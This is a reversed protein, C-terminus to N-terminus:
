GKIQVRGAICEVDLPFNPGKQGDTDTPIDTLPSTIYLNHTRIYRISAPKGGGLYRLADLILRPISRKTFFICDLMGDDCRSMRAFPFHGATCGNFVLVIAANIDFEDNDTKVLLPITPIKRLERLGKIIYALRGLYRKVRDSTRQSTTTFLGFSFVNIFFQENTRGCDVIRIPSQLIHLAAKRPNHPIGLMTAFDNATGAPVIGLPLNINKLLMSSVVYGITGDGGIAVVIDINDINSFPNEDFNLEKHLVLAGARELTTAVSNIVSKLKQRGANRSYLLLLKPM